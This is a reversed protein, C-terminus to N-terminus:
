HLLRNLSTVAANLDAHADCTVECAANRATLEKLILQADDRRGQQLYSLALGHEVRASLTEPLSQGLLSRHHGGRTKSFMSEARRPLGAGLNALGALYYVEPNDTGDGALRDLVVKAEMFRGQAIADRGKKLALASTGYHGYGYFVSGAPPQASVPAIFAAAILASVLGLSLLRM